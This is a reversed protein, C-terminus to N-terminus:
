ASLLDKAKLVIDHPWVRLLVAPQFLPTMKNSMVVNRNQVDMCWTRHLSNVKCSSFWGVVVAFFKAIKACGRKTVTFCYIFGVLTNLYSMESM